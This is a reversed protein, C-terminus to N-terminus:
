PRMRALADALSGAGFLWGDAAVICLAVFSISGLVLLLSGLMQMASDGRYNRRRYFTTM